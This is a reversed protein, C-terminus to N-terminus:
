IHTMIRKRFGISTEGVYEWKSFPFKIMYILNMAEWDVGAAWYHEISETSARQHKNRSIKAQVAYVTLKAKNIEFFIEWLKSKSLKKYSKVEIPECGSNM